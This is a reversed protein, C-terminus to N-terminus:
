EAVEMGEVLKAFVADCDDTKKPKYCENLHGIAHVCQRLICIETTDEWHICDCCSNYTKDRQPHIPINKFFTGNQNNTWYGEQVQSVSPLKNIIGNCDELIAEEGKRMKGRKLAYIHRHYKELEKIAAQRSIYDDM